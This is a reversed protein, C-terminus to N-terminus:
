FTATIQWLDVSKPTQHTYKTHLIVELSMHWDTVTSSNKILSSACTMRPILTSPVVPRIRRLHISHVMLQGYLIM